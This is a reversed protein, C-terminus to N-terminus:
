PWNIDPNFWDPVSIVPISNNAVDSKPVCRMDKNEPCLDCADGFMDGDTNKQDPNAKWPCNDHVDPVNDGDRDDASYCFNEGSGWDVYTSKPSIQSSIIAFSCKESGQFALRLLGPEGHSNKILFAEGYNIYGVVIVMHGGAEGNVCYMIDGNKHYGWATYASVPGTQLAEVLAKKRDQHSMIPNTIQKWEKIRYFPIQYIYTNNGNISIYKSCNECAGWQESKSYKEEIAGYKKFYEYIPRDDGTSSCSIRLCNHLNQESLDLSIDKGYDIQYQIELLGIASHLFCDTCPQKKISTVYNEAIGDGNLDINAWSLNKSMYAKPASDIKNNGGCCGCLALFLILIIKTM